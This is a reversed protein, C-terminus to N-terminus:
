LSNQPESPPKQGMAMHLYKDTITFGLKKQPQIRQNKM